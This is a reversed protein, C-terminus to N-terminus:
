LVKEYNEKWKKEEGWSEFLVKRGTYLEILACIENPNVPILDPHEGCYFSNEPLRDLNTVVIGSLKPNHEIGKKLLVLDLWGARFDRQWENFINNTDPTLKTLNKDETPLPGIGHRTIYGRTVGLNLSNNIRDGILKEAEKLAVNSKTVWPKFGYDMDLLTGQSGELIVVENDLVEQLKTYFNFHVTSKLVQGASFLKDVYYTLKPLRDFFHKKANPHLKLVKSSKAACTAVLKSELVKYELLDKARVVFEENNRVDEFTEGVGLGTTSIRGTTYSKHIEIAQNYIKHYETIIPCNSDIYLREILNTLGNLTHIRHEELLNLPDVCMQSSLYTIISQSVASGSGFQAFIHEKGNVVVRHAAQSGGSFRVIATANLSETLAAVTRGKGEDGFALGIVVVIM